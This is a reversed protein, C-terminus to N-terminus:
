APPPFHRRTDTFLGKVIVANVPKGLRGLPNPDLAITWTFRSANPGTEEVLYDEAFRRYM